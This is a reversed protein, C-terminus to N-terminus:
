PHWWHDHGPGVDGASRVRDRVCWSPSMNPNMVRLTQTPLCYTMLHPMHDRNRTGPALDAESCSAQRALVSAMPGVISIQIGFIFSVFIYVVAFLIVRARTAPVAMNIFGHSTIM